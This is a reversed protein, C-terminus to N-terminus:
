ATSSFGYKRKAPPIASKRHRRHTIFVKPLQYLKLLKGEYCHNCLHEKISLPELSKPPFKKKLRVLAKTRRNASLFGYYRIRVFQDPNVHQLFRRSFEIASVTLYKRQCNNKYDKYSFTVQRNALKVIRQNSIAIRHTYLSLYKLVM